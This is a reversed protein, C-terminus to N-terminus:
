ALVSSTKKVDRNRSYFSLDVTVGVHELMLSAPQVDHDPTAIVAAMIDGVLPANKFQNGSTGIAVFYGNLDTKDYVPIWDDSVDYLGV